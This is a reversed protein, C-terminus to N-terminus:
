YQYNYIKLDGYGLRMYGEIVSKVIVKTGVCCGIVWLSILENTM